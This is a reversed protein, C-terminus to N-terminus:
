FPAADTEFDWIDTCQSNKYWGTVTYKNDNPATPEKIKSGAGIKQLLEM